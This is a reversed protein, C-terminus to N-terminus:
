VQTCVDCMSVCVHVCVDCVDCMHTCVHECECMVGCAHMSVTFVNIVFNLLCKTHTGTNHYGFSYNLSPPCHPKKNQLRINFSKRLGESYTKESM